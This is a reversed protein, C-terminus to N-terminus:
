SACKSKGKKPPRPAAQGARNACFLQTDQPQDPPPTPGVPFRCDHRGLHTLRVAQPSYVEGARPRGHAIADHELCYPSPTRSM